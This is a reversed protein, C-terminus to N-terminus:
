YSFITLLVGESSVVLALLGFPHPDFTQVLALNLFLFYTSGVTKVIADSFKHTGSRRALAEEELKAIAQVNLKSPHDTPLNRSYKM